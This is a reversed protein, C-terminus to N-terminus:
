AEQGRTRENRIKEALAWVDKGKLRLPRDPDNVVWYNDRDDVEFTSVHHVGKERALTAVALLIEGHSLGM